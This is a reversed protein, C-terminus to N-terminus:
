AFLVFPLRCTIHSVTSLVCTANEKCGVGRETCLRDAQPVPACGWAFEPGPFVVSFVVTSFWMCSVGVDCACILM